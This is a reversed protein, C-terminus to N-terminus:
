WKRIEERAVFEELTGDRSIMRLGHPCILVPSGKFMDGRATCGIRAWQQPVTYDRPIPQIAHACGSCSLLLILIMVPHALTELSALARQLTPRILPRGSWRM